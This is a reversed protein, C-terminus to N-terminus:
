SSTRPREASARCNSSNRARPPCSAATGSWCSGAPRLSTGAKTNYLGISKIYPSLGAVGLALVAAPTNADRFLNATAKNVSKDTAQASLVVAVLLEFPSRYNLETRPAPNAERLRSFLAHRKAANV